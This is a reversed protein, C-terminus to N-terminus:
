KKKIKLVLLPLFIVFLLASIWQSLTLNYFRPDSIGIIDASRTFDLLFRTLAYLTIFLYATVGEKRKIFPWFLIIIIFIVFGSIAHYLSSSHRLDGQYYTGLFFDTKAGIHNGMLYDGIRGIAIGLAVGPAAIDAAQWFHLKKIKVYILAALAAFILGGYLSLGGKTINILEAIGGEAFFTNFHELAYVIRAGILGFIFVIIFLDYLNESTLKHAKAGKLKKTRGISLLLGVLMGVAVFLGWIQISLPGLDITPM